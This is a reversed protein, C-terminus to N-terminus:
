EFTKLLSKEVEASAIILTKFVESEACDLALMVYDSTWILPWLNNIILLRQCFRMDQQLGM